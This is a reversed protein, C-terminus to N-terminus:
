NEKESQVKESEVKESEVKEQHVIDEKNLDDEAEFVNDELKEENQSYDENMSTNISEEKIEEVNKTGFYDMIKDTWDEFLERLSFSKNKTYFIELDADSLYRYMYEKNSDIFQSGLDLNEGIADKVLEWTFKFLRTLSQNNRRVTETMPMMKQSVASHSNNYIKMAGNIKSQVKPMIVDITNSRLSKTYNLSVDVMSKKMNCVTECTNNTFKTVTTKASDYYPNITKSCSLSLNKVPSIIATDIKKHLKIRLETTKKYTTQYTTKVYASTFNYVKKVKKGESRVRKVVAKRVYECSKARKKIQENFTRGSWRVKKNLINVKEKIGNSVNEYKKNMSEVGEVGTSLIRVDWRNQLNEKKSEKTVNGVATLYCEELYKMRSKNKEESSDDDTTTKSMKYLEKAISLIENSKAIYENEKVRSFVNNVISFM